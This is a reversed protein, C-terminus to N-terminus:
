SVCRGGNKSRASPIISLSRRFLQKTRQMDKAVRRLFSVEFLKLTETSQTKTGKRKVKPVVKVDMISLM